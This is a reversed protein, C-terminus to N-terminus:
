KFNKKKFFLKLLGILSVIFSNLNVSSEGRTRNIFVTDIEGIKLNKYNIEQLIESLIIFGDGIRGCKQLITKCSSKSYIRFGNTYDSVPISLLLRALKNAYYSLIRRSIPWNLIKSKKLYRSSILLDLKTEFFYNLNRPIESPAHSFDADMEIVAKIKRNRIIKKIGFIVASGRGAKNKRHFYKVKIKKKKIIESTKFSLSDDVLIIIPKKVYYNIKKILKEINEEENYAPIIIAIQKSTFKKIMLQYDIYYHYM